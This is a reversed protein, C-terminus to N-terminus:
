KRLDDLSIKKKKLILKNNVEGKINKEGAKAYLIIYYLSWQSVDFGRPNSLCNKSLIRSCADAFKIRKFPCVTFLKAKPM